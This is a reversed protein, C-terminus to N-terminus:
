GPETPDSRLLRSEPSREPTPADGVERRDNAAANRMQEAFARLWVAASAAGEADARAALRAAADADEERILAAAVYVPAM